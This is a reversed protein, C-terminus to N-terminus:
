LPGCVRTRRTPQNAGDNEYKTPTPLQPIKEFSQLNGSPQVMPWPSALSRKTTEETIKKAPELSGPSSCWWSFGGNKIYSYTKKVVVWCAFSLSNFTIREWPFGLLVFGYSFFNYFKLSVCLQHLFNSITSKYTVEYQLNGFKAPVILFLFCCACVCVCM